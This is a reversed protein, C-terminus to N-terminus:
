RRKQYYRRYNASTAIVPHDEHQGYIRDLYLIGDLHDIEHQAIRASYGPLDLSFPEGHRDWGDLRVRAYRKVIGRLGDISLCGEWGAVLRADLVTLVPNCVIYLPAVDVVRAHPDPSLRAAFFRLDLDVQPAALGVSTTSSATMTAILRDFHTQMEPTTIARMPIDPAARRLAPHGIQVISLPQM